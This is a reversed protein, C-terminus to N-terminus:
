FPLVNASIGESKYLHICSEDTTFVNDFLKAYKIWIHYSIPDEKNWFYTKIGYKNCLRVILSITEFKKNNNIKSWTFDCGKWFSDVLLLKPKFFKIINEYIKTKNSYPLYYYSNDLKFQEYTFNDSIILKNNIINSINSICFIGYMKYERVKTSVEGNDGWGNKRWCIGIDSTAIEYCADKHSLNHKFTIGKVGNKIYENVKRTFTVDGHIKGYVIKLVVEPRKKHIKQFEEIIELINEEDRLTGCYVFRIENDNKKPLNFDYKFVIPQVIYIKESDINNKVLKKKLLESQTIISHFKNNMKKLGDMHCDLGYFIVRNLYPKSKMEELVEHNRIFAYDVSYMYKDITNMINKTDAGTIVITYKKYILNRIFDPCKYKTILTIHNNNRMLLNMYNSVMITDGANDNLYSHSNILIKKHRIQSIPCVEHLLNIKKKIISMIDDVNKWKLGFTSHNHIIPINMLNMEKLGAVEHKQETLCLGIAVQNYIKALKYYPVNTMSSWIIETNPFHKIVQDIYKKGYISVNRLNPTKGNFIFIKKGLGSTPKFLMKDVCDFHIRTSYEKNYKFLDTM